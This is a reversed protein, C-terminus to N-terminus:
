PLAFQEQPQMVLRGLNERDPMLFTDILACRNAM